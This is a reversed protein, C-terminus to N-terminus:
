GRSGPKWRKLLLANTVVSVSSFAMAAGAIMPNLFGLAALPIGVINYIFAWFLNQRIKRYTRKSIEIADPILRPDGRMLTIGASHMAVDTGTSMALGVHAAALAPADNIGDGVMAVVAGDKKLAVIADAKDQPLVEARVEDIGLSKAVANASGANDGTLMVTRIGLEHLKGIMNASSSKVKDSFALSGLLERSEADGLFALTKGESEQESLWGGASDLSVGSEIMLRKSGLLLRRGNVRGEIGRGALAKIETASELPLSDIRARDLVAKGLPHESGEQLARSLILVTKKDVAASKVSSVEPKGETLTGTKDFAITTVSHAVELAEADKILIGLKAGIGTGVMVSTPTALGLACPCAIVLVAVGHLIAAEWDGVTLGWGAITALAIVIVIPVFIASVKDVLRQIPAKASQANEVLRIIRALTTEAGLATVKVKLVGEANVSGGTVADGLGKEVPLSEGTILAEDVQSAGETVVGDTPIREGPRVLILDDLRVEEIAVEVVEAGRILRATNPRLAQLSRIAASTQQKARSELYKGLLILTIIVAASEFYLPVMGHNSHFDSSRLLHFLSLGYAASTGIAVLLDMNGARARLAKYAAKYFRAGFVFQVPTALAFQIWGPLMAPKGFIEIIMPLVLPATLAASMILKRLESKLEHDKETMENFSNKSARTQSEYGAKKVALVLDNEALLGRVSLISATETALNVQASLVGPIKKLAKEVRGVCSACTMGKVKLSAEESPVEYGARNVADLVASLVSSNELEVTALETALNVTVAHVGQVKRVANEIRNACSACTMGRIPIRFTVFKEVKM